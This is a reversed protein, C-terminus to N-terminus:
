CGACTTHMNCAHQMCTAYLFFFSLVCMFLFYEDMSAKTAMRFSCMRTETTEASPKYEEMKRWTCFEQFDAASMHLCSTPTSLYQDFPPEPSGETVQRNPVEAECEKWPPPRWVPTEQKGKKGKKGQKKKTGKKEPKGTKAKKKPKGEGRPMWVPDAADDPLESSSSSSERSAARKRRRRHDIEAEDDSESASSEEQEESEEGDEEEEQEDDSSDAVSTARMNCAVKSEVESDEEEESDSSEDSGSSTSGSPSRRPTSKRKKPRKGKSKSKVKRSKKPPPVDENPHSQDRRRKRSVKSSVNALAHL